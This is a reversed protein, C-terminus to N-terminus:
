GVRSNINKPDNENVAVNSWEFIAIDVQRM